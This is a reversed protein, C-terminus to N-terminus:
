PDLFWYVKRECGSFYEFDPNHNQVSLASFGGITLCVLTTITCFLVINRTTPAPLRDM